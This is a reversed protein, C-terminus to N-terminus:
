KKESRKLFFFALGVLLVTVLATGGVIMMLLPAIQSVKETATTTGTAAEACAVSAALVFSVLFCCLKKLYIM